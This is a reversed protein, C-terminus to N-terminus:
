GVLSVEHFNEVADVRHFFSKAGAAATEIVHQQSALTEFRMLGRMVVRAELAEGGLAARGADADALFRSLLEGLESSGVGVLPDDGEDARLLREGDLVEEGCRGCRIVLRGLGARGAQQEGEVAYLVRLVEARQQAYGVAGSHVADDEGFAAGRWERGGGDFGAGAGGLM